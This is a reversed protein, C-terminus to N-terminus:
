DFMSEYDRPDYLKFKYTRLYEQSGAQRVIDILAAIQKQSVFKEIGKVKGDLYKEPAKIRMDPAEPFDCYVGLEYLQPVEPLHEGLEPWITGTAHFLSILFEEHVIKHDPHLDTSTPLFCRSPRVKRLYHTFVNQLGAYGGVVASDGESALKRGRYQNLGSDPLGLWIINERPIGLAEYCDYTEKMRIESITAKEEASCYGMRGDTAIMIYVPINNELALQMTLGGGLIVDDDHPSVFLFCENDKDWDAFGEEMSGGQIKGEPTLRTIELTDSM